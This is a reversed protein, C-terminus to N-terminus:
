GTGDTRVTRRDFYWRGARKVLEDEYWATAFPAPPAEGASQKVLLASCGGRAGSDAPEIILNATIHRLPGVESFTGEAFAILGDRGSVTLDPPVLFKGRPAFCDAWEGSRQADFLAYYRGYLNQIAFYDEAELM